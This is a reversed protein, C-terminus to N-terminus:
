SQITAGSSKLYRQMADKHGALNMDKLDFIEETGNASGLRLFWSGYKSYSISFASSKSRYFSYSDFQFESVVDEKLFTAVGPRFELFDKRNAFYNFSSSIPLLCLLAPLAYAYWVLQSVSLAYVIGVLLVLNVAHLLVEAIMSLEFRRGNGGQNEGRCLLKHWLVRIAVLVGLCLLVLGYYPLHDGLSKFGATAFEFFAIVAILVGAIKIRFQTLKGVTKQM